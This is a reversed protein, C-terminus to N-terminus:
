GWYKIGAQGAVAVVAAGILLLSKMGGREMVNRKVTIGYRKLVGYGSVTTYSLM